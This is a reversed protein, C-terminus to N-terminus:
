KRWSRILGDFTIGNTDFAGPYPAKARHKKAQRHMIELREKQRRKFDILDQTSDKKM